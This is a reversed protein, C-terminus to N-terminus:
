PAMDALVSHMYSMANFLIFLCFLFPSPFPFSLFAFKFGEFPCFGAMQVQVDLAQPRQWLGNLIVYLSLLVHVLLVCCM